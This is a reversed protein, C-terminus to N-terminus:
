PTARAEIVELVATDAEIKYLKLNRKGFWSTPEFYDGEKIVREISENSALDRFKFLCATAARDIKLLTIEL